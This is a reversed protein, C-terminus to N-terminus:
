SDVIRRDKKSLILGTFGLRGPSHKTELRPLTPVLRPVHDRRFPTWGAPPPLLPPSPPASRTAPRRRATHLHGPRQGAAEPREGRTTRRGRCSSGPVSRENRNATSGSPPQPRRWSRLRSRTRQPPPRPARATPRGGIPRDQQGVGADRDGRGRLLPREDGASASIPSSTAPRFGKAATSRPKRRTSPRTSAPDAPQPGRLVERYAAFREKLLDHVPHGPPRSLCGTRAM